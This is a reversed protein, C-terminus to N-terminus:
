AALSAALMLSLRDPSRSRRRKLAVRSPLTGPSVFCIASSASRRSICSWLKLVTSTASASPVTTAELGSLRPMLPWARRERSARCCRRAMTLGANRERAPLRM